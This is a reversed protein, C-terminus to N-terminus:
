LQKLWSIKAIFHNENNVPHLVSEMKGQNFILHVYSLPAYEWSFRFYYSKSKDFSNRQYFGTMQLKPNIAFRGQVIYLDVVSTTLTEGVQIFHNRNWEGLLSIHPIPAFQLKWDASRIKGNFYEGWRYDVALNIFKSPDTNFIIWQQFYNYEGPRISLGLPTFATLLKQYEPLVSYGFQAGNQFNLWIPWLNLTREILKGSSTQWYFEPLFGPEFARIIKKFPLLKGRYYYNLGPTTGIVDTRSIFGMQPDFDKSVVSQTWWIKYHNTSNYYQAIGAFGNLARDSTHTYSMIANISQAENIRLFGDLTATTNTGSVTNKISLLSGIRNQDGINQSFRGVFFNTASQSQNGEQRMMMGGYNRHISRNVFRGGAVIPIPNGDNDLGISRSFFPQM